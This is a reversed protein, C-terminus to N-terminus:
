SYFPIWITLGILYPLGAEKKLRQHISRNLQGLRFSVSGKWSNKYCFKKSRDLGTNGLFNLFVQTKLGWATRMSLNINPRQEKTHALSYTVPAPQPNSLAVGSFFYIEIV